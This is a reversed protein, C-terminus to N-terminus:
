LFRIGSTECSFIKSFDIGNGVETFIKERDQGYGKCALTFGTQM